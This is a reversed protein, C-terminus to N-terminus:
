DGDAAPQQQLVVTTTLLDEAVRAVGVTVSGFTKRVFRVTSLRAQLDVAPVRPAAVTGHISCTATAGDFAYVGGSPCRALLPHQTGQEIGVLNANCAGHNEPTMLALRREEPEILRDLLRTSCRLAYQMRRGLGALATCYDATGELKERESLVSEIARRGTALVLFDPTVTLCPELEQPDSGPYRTYYVRHEGVMRSAFVHGQRELVDRLRTFLEVCRNADRTSILAAAQPYKLEWVFFLSLEDGVWPKVDRVFDVGLDGIASGVRDRGAAIATEGGVRPGVLCADLPIAALPSLDGDGPRSTVKANVVMADKGDVLELALGGLRGVLGAMRDTPRATHRVVAGAVSAFAPPRGVLAPLDAMVFARAGAQVRPRLAKVM